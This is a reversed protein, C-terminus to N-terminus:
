VQMRMVEQYADVLKNRVQVALQLTLQAQEMAFAVQHLDDVAGALYQVTLNDAQQQSKQVEQLLNEFVSTSNDSLDKKGPANQLSSLGTLTDLSLKGLEM